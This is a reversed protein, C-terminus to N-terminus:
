LESVASAIMAPVLASLRGLMNHVDRQGAHMEVIADTGDVRATTGALFPGFGMMAVMAERRARAVMDEVLSAITSAAAVDHTAAIARFDLDGSLNLRMGVTDGAQLRVDSQMQQAVAPTVLIVLAGTATDFDVRQAMAQLSGADLPSPGAHGAHRELMPAVQGETGALITGDPLLAVEGQGARVLVEQGDRVKGVFVPQGDERLDGLTRRLSVVDYHGRFVASIEVDDAGAPAANVGIVIEDSVNALSPLDLSALATGSLGQAIERVWEDLEEHYPSARLAAVDIRMVLFATEPLHGVASPVVPTGDAVTTDAVDPTAGGCAVVACAVVACAVPGVVLRTVRRAISDIM